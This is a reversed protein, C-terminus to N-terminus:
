NKQRYTRTFSIKVIIIFVVIVFRHIVLSLNGEFFLADKVIWLFVRIIKRRAVVLIKNMYDNLRDSSITDYSVYRHFTLYSGRFLAREIIM